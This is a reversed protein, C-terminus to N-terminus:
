HVELFIGSVSYGQEQVFRMNEIIKIYDQVQQQDYHEGTKYDIILVKKQTENILLRDIRKEHGNEDFVIRENFAKDWFQKSFYNQNNDLFDTVRTVIKNFEDQQLLNGMDALIKNYAKERASVSDFIIEALFNHVINGRLIAQPDIFQEPEHKQLFETNPLKFYDIINDLNKFNVNETKFESIINGAKYQLHIPSIEEFQFEDYLTAFLQKAISLDKIPDTAIEEITKNKRAVKNFIILNNAARTLQVYINNLEETAERIKIAKYLNPKSLHIIKHFNYSYSWDSFNSFNDNFQGLIKLGRQNNGRSPNTSLLAFVTEFELGKSKHITMLKLANTESLGLQTFEEKNEIALCYAAFGSLDSSYDGSSKEFEAALELFKHLNKIDLETSFIKTFSYKKIILGILETISYNSKRLEGIEQIIQNDNELFFKTWDLQPTSYDKIQLLVKKFNTGGMLVLDSRLFKILEFPDEYVFFNILYMIPKIARHQLLSASSELIYDVGSEDLIRAIQNLEKNKRALIACNAPDIKKNNILPLIHKHVIEYLYDEDNLKHERWASEESNILNLEFYGTESKDNTDVNSYEWDANYKHLHEHLFSNSFIRNINDIVIKRSRYSRSLTEVKKSMNILQPAKLLLRREGGRWGYVSQKEDGVIIVGGVGHQGAGSIAEQILPNLINWQLISTDQFEDILIYSTKYSLQEYFLNQITNGDTVSLESDYLFRYTFYTIDSYTFISNKFKIEDYKKLLVNALAYLQIQEPRVLSQYLYQALKETVKESLEQLYAKNETFDKTKFLKNGDWFYPNLFITYNQELNNKNTFLEILYLKMQPIDLDNPNQMCIFPRYDKKIFKGWDLIKKKSTIFKQLYDCFTDILKTVASKYESFALEIEEIEPVQLQDEVFNFIWRNEIISEIFSQYDSLNRYGKNEFIEQFIGFFKEDLIENFLDPMYQENIKPDIQPDKINYYPAILGSFITNSFSDITSVRLIDKNAIMKFYVTKLYNIEENGIKLKPEFIKISELLSEAEELQFVIQKMQSFIRQRIEATAKKTFTLVLIEDFSTVGKYKLLLTIFELSLRYTKGTGASARIIKKEPLIDKYAM